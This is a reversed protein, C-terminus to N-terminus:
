SCNDRNKYHFGVMNERESKKTFPQPVKHFVEALTMPGHVEINLKHKEIIKNVRDPSLEKFEWAGILRGPRFFAKDIKVLSTNFTCIFQINLCDSLLGDSLNLLNSIISNRVTERSELISEADEIVMVANSNSIAFNIFSPSALYPVMDSSVIIVKKNLKSILHRIYTTKGTGPKGHLFVIGKENIKSLCGHIHNDFDVLGDNYFLELDIITDELKFRRTYLGDEDASQCLLHISGKLSPPQVKHRKLLDICFNWAATPEDAIACGMNIFYDDEDNRLLYFFIENDVVAWLSATVIKTGNEVFHELRQLYSIESGVLGLSNIFDDIRAIQYHICQAPADKVANIIYELRLENPLNASNMLAESIRQPNIRKSVM